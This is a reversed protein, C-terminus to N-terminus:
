RAGQPAGAKTKAGASRKMQGEGRKTGSDQHDSSDAAPRTVSTRPKTKPDQDAPTDRLPASTAKDRPPRPKRSPLTKDAATKAAGRSAGTQPTTRRSRGENMGNGSKADTTTSHAPRNRPPATDEQPKCPKWTEQGPVRVDIYEPPTNSKLAHREIAAAAIVKRVLNDPGGLRVDTGSPTRLHLDYRTQVNLTFSLGMGGKRAGEECALACRVAEASLRGGTPGAGVQAGELRPFTAAPRATHFLLVGDADVMVYDRDGRLALRPKRETVAIVIRSPLERSIDVRLVRPCCMAQAELEGLPYFVTNPRPLLKLQARVEEAVGPDPSTVVVERLRFYESHLMGLGASFVVVVAAPLLARGVYHWANPHTADRPVNGVVAVASARLRPTRNM